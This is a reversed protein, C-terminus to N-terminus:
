TSRPRPRTREGITGTVSVPQLTQDNAEISFSTAEGTWLPAVVTAVVCRQFRGSPDVGMAKRPLWGRPFPLIEPPAPFTWGREPDGIRDGDVQLSWQNGDDDVYVGWQFGRSM